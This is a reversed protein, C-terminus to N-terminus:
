SSNKDWINRPFPPADEPDVETMEERCDNSITVRKGDNRIAKWYTSGDEIEKKCITCTM